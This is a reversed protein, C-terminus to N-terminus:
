KCPYAEALARVLGVVPLENMRESDGTHKAGWAVFADRGDAITATGPYCILRKLKRRDSVADHYQVTAEIFARCALRAETVGEGAGEASCVQYLDETTDFKFDSEDLALAGTSLWAAAIFVGTSSLFRDFRTM